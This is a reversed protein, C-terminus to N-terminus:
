LAEGCRKCVRQKAGDQGISFGVRTPRNCRPCVRRLNAVSVPQEQSTFGGQPNDQTRRLHKKVMNIGEVLARGAAPDVRLVKGQKGRNKGVMVKVLDDRRIKLM